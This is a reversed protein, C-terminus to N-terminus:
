KTNDSMSAVTCRVGVDILWLLLFLRLEINFVVKGYVLRLLHGSATQRQYTAIADASFFM